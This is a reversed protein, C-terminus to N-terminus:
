RIRNERGAAFIDADLAAIEQPTLGLRGRRKLEYFQSIEAATWIRKESGTQTRPAGAKPTGPAVLSDLTVQTGPGTSPAPTPQPSAPPTVAVHENQYGTFFAIVRQADFSEYAETLLDGRSRNSYPDTQDLWEMFLPDDNMQAWNPVAAALAGIVGQKSSKSAVQTNSRVADAVRDIRQNVPAIRRDLEHTIPTIEERAVRRFMDILDHGYEKVEADTVLKATPAPAAAPTSAAPQAVRSALLEKTTQLENALEQVQARLRTVEHNFKGQLVKYRQEWADPSVAPAAPPAEPPHVGSVVPPAQPPAQPPEATPSGSAPVEAAPPQNRSERFMKALRESEAAARRVAQPIASM